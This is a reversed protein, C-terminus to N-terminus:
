TPTLLVVDVKEDLLKKAVEPGYEDTLGTVNRLAGMFSYYIDSLSGIKGLAVLENLRDIPFTINIDKYISTRDFGISTHSQVIDAPDTIRPIVRFSADGGNKATTFPNDGRVHLGATTVLAVKCESLPKSMEVWPSDENEPSPWNLLLDRQQETLIELKPM